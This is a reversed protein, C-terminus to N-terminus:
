YPCTGVFYTNEQLLLEETVNYNKHHGMCLSGYCGVGILGRGREHSRPRSGSYALEALEIDARRIRLM